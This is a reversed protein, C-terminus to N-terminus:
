EESLARSQKEKNQSSQGHHNRAHDLGLLLKIYGLHVVRARVLEKGGIGFLEWPVM